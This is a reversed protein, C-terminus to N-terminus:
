TPGVQLIMSNNRKKVNPQKDMTEPESTSTISHSVVTTSYSCVYHGEIKLPLIMKTTGFQIHPAISSFNNYM